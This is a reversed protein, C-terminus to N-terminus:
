GETKMAAAALPVGLSKFHGQQFLKGRQSQQDIEAQTEALNKISAPEVYGMQATSQVWSGAVTPNAALSPAYRALVGFHRQVKHRDLDELKPYEKFMDRYSNEIDKQLGKEERHRMIKSGGAVLGTALSAAAALRGLSGIVEPWEKPAEMMEKGPKAVYRKENKLGRMVGSLFGNAKPKMGRVASFLTGAEKQMAERILRERALLVEDLAEKTLLGKKHCEVALQLSNM